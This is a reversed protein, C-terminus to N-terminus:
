RASVRRDPLVVAAGEIGIFTADPGPSYGLKEFAPFLRETTFRDASEKSDWVDVTHLAGDADGAISLLRGEIADPGMAEEVARYDAMSSGPTHTIFTYSV